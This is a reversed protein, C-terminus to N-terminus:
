RATWMAGVSRVAMPTCRAPTPKGAVLPASDRVKVPPSAQESDNRGWCVPTGDARLGCTHAHGSSIAAFQERGATVGPRLLRPGLLGPRRGGSRVPTHGAAASPLSRRERRRRPGVRRRTAGACRRAMQGCRASTGSGAASPWSDSTPPRRRRATTMWAGACRPATRILRAPSDIATASRRSLRPGSVAEFGRSSISEPVDSGPNTHACAFTGDELVGCSHWDGGSSM